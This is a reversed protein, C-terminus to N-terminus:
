YPWESCAYRLCYSLMLLSTNVELKTFAYTTIVTIILGPIALWKAGIKDFLKGTIPSMVGMIIGGPLLMLGSQLPPTFGRVNQTYIPMLIMGAYMTMTTIVNIVTLLTFMRYRFIRFELIPHDVVFQRWIFLV